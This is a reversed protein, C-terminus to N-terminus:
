RVSCVVTNAYALRVMDVNIDGGRQIVIKSAPFNSKLYSFLSKFVADCKFALHKKTQTKRNRNEALVYIYSASRPILEVFATFPLFGYYGVFNDGCRYHIAADPVLPISTGAPMTSLDNVGVVGHRPFSPQNLLSKLSNRFIARVLDVERVWTAYKREHCSGPCRCETKIKQSIIEFTSPNDHKIMSPLAALFPIPSDKKSPEYVKAVAVYHM